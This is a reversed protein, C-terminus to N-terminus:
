KVMYVDYVCTESQSSLRCKVVYVHRLLSAPTVRVSDKQAKSMAEM